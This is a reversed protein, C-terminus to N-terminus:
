SVEVKRTRALLAMHIRSGDVGNRRCKCDCRYYTRGREVWMADVQRGDSSYGAQAFFRRRIERATRNSGLFGVWLQGHETDLVFGLRTSCRHCYVTLRLDERDFSDTAELDALHHWPLPRELTTVLARGNRPRVADGAGVGKAM